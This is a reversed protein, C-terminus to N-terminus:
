NSGSGPYTRISPFRIILYKSFAKSFSLLSNPKLSLAHMESAEVEESGLRKCRISMTVLGRLIM